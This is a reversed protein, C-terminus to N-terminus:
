DELVNSFITSKLALALLMFALGWYLYIQYFDQINRVVRSRTPSKELRDIDAFVVALRGADTARFYRGNGITAITKLVGEDVSPTTGAGVLLSDAPLRAPVAVRGVAITYLRIGFAKALRATTIPDLNGATNDGDSLLIVLKTQKSEAPQTKTDPDRLRNICRALADGIATGTTQIMGIKLDAVYQQLLPYDTTLPCISFAEGAFVVVGIRDHKRGAVFQRAVQRAASLRDPRVDTEAMSSSVDIALMIDIGPSETERRERVRQPRALAVLLLALSLFAVVPMLFRLYQWWWGFGGPMGSLQLQQEAAQHLRKRLWFLGLVVPVAYLVAPNAFEMQQWHAPSFWYLSYWPLQNIAM